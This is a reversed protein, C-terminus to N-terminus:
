DGGYPLGLMASGKSGSPMMHYRPAESWLARGLRDTVPSTNGLAGHRGNGGVLATRELLVKPPLGGRRAVEGGPARARGVALVPRSRTLRRVRNTLLVLRSALSVKMETALKTAVHKQADNMAWVASKYQAKCAGAVRLLVGGHAM